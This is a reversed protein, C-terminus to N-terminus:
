DVAFAALLRSAEQIIAPSTGHQACMRLMAQAMHAAILEQSRAVVIMGPCSVVALGLNRAVEAPRHDNVLLTAGLSRSLAIAAAEGAGFRDLPAPEPDPPDQLQDRVQDFLATDPYLRQPYRSDSARLEAEVARPVVIDFARMAYGLLGVKFGVTWFSTDLV